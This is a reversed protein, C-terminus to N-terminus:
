SIVDYGAYEVDIVDDGNFWSELLWAALDKGLDDAVDSDCKVSVEFKLKVNTM